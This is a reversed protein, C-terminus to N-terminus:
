RLTGVSLWNAVEWLNGCCPSSELTASPASMRNKCECGVGFWWHNLDSEEARALLRLVQVRVQLHHRRREVRQRLLLLRDNRKWLKFARWSSKLTYFGYSPIAM